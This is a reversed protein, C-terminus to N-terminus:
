KTLMNRRYIKLLSENLGDNEVEVSQFLEAIFRSHLSSTFHHSLALIIDNLIAIDKQDLSSGRFTLGTGENRWKLFKGRRRVQALKKVIFLYKVVWM